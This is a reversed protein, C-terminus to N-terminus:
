PTGISEIARLDLLRALVAQLDALIDAGVEGYVTTVESKLMPQVLSAYAVVRPADFGPTGDPLPVDWPGVEGRHSASCPVVLLTVPSRSVAWERVQVVIARRTEHSTRPGAGPLRDAPLQVAADAVAVVLGPAFRRSVEPAALGQRSVLARLDKPPRKGVTM